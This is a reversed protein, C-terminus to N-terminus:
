GLVRSEVARVNRDVIARWNQAALRVFGYRSEMIPAYNAAYTAYITEGV